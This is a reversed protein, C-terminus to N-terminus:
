GVGLLLRMIIIRARRWHVHEWDTLWSYDWLKAKFYLLCLEILDHNRWLSTDRQEISFLTENLSFQRYIIVFDPSVSRLFSIWLCLAIIITAVILIIFVIIICRFSYITFIVFSLSYDSLFLLLKFFNTSRNLLLCISRYTHTHPTHKNIDDCNNSLYREERVYKENWISKIGFFCIEIKYIYSLSNFIFLNTRSNVLRLSLNFRIAIQRLERSHESERRRDDASISSYWCSELHKM